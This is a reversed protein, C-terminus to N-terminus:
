KLKALLNKLLLFKEFFPKKNNTNPYQNKVDKVYFVIFTKKKM